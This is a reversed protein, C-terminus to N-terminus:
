PRSSALADNAHNYLFVLNFRACRRLLPRPESLTRFVWALGSRQLWQPADKKLGGAHGSRGSKAQVCLSEITSDSPPAARMESVVSIFDM